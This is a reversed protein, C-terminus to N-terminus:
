KTAVTTDYSVGYGGWVGLAGGEINTKISAPAAFPNGNSIMETDFSRWFDFHGKDITCFKVIITDGTKYLHSAEQNDEESPHHGRDYAFSISKGNFFKDEFASGLPAIFNNDQGQRKAFWRYANGLAPPDSLNAWILGSSDSTGFLEFWISDLPVLQPIETTSSYTKDGATVTLKYTKGVIGFVSFNTYICYQLNILNEAPIGIAESIFPLLATDLDAACLETLTFDNIGDSVVVLADHVFLSDFTSLGVDDFYPTSRTLIVYPPLGQEIHGQIVIKDEVDPLEITINKECCTFLLLLIIFFNKM